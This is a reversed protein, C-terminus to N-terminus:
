SGAWAALFAEALMPLQRSYGGELIAATPLGIEKLRQGFGAFDELQLGFDTLPDEVFADFGASVLILDPNFQM